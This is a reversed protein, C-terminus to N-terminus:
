CLPLNNIGKVLFIRDEIVPYNSPAFLLPCVDQASVLASGLLMWDSERVARGSTETPIRQWCLAARSQVHIDRIDAMEAQVEYFIIM